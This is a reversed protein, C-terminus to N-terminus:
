GAHIREVLWVLGSLGIALSAVPVFAHPPTIRRAMVSALAICPLALALQGLEVGLNFELLARTVDRAAALELSRLAGAFGLGHLLGFAFSVLWPFRVTLGTRGRRAHLIEAGLFVISLAIAADVDRFDFRNRLERVAQDVANRVEQQDVESVIDFSPM